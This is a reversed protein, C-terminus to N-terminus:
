EQKLQAAFSDTEARSRSVFFGSCLETSNKRWVIKMVPLGWLWKGAHWNGSFCSIIESRPIVIPEKTLYRLFYFATEDTWYEGDGRAFLGDKTYRKWWTQGIETGCYKGRKKASDM